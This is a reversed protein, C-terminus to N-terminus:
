SGGFSIAGGKRRREGERKDDQAQRLIETTEGGADGVGAQGGYGEAVAPGAFGRPYAVGFRAAM